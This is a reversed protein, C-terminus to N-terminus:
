YLEEESYRKDIITTSKVTVGNFPLLNGQSVKCYTIKCTKEGFPDLRWNLRPAASKAHLEPKFILQTVFFFNEMQLHLM